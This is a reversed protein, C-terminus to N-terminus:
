QYASVKDLSTIVQVQLRIQQAPPEAALEAASSEATVAADSVAQQLM